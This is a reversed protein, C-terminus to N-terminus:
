FRKTNMKLKILQVELERKEIEERNWNVIGIETNPLMGWIIKDAIDHKLKKIKERLVKEKINKM